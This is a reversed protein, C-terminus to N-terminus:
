KNKKLRKILQTISEDTVDEKSISLDDLIEDMLNVNTFEIEMYPKPYVSEDWIDIDFRQGKYSYSIRKKEGKYQEFVGLEELIRSMNSYSSIESTYENNVRVGDDNEVVEKFTIVTPLKKEDTNTVRIRLYGNKFAGKKPAFTYNTQYETGIKVAGKSILREQIEEVDINLVKVEIEREM